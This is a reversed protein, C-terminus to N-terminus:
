LMLIKLRTIKTESQVTITAQAARITQFKLSDTQTQQAQQMIVTKIRLLSILTQQRSRIKLLSRQLLPRTQMILFDATQYNLQSKIILMLKLTSFLLVTKTPLFLASIALRQRATRTQVTQTLLSHLRQQRYHKVVYLVNLMSAAAAQLPQRFM